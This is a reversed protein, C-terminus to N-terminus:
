RRVACAANSASSAARDAPWGRGTGRVMMRARKKSSTTMVAADPRAQSPGPEPAAHRAASAAAHLPISPAAAFAVAAATAGQQWTRVGRVGGGSPTPHGQGAWAKGAQRPRWTPPAGGVGEAWSGGSLVLWPKCWM